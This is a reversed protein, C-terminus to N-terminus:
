FYFDVRSTFLRRSDGAKVTIGNITGDAVANHWYYATHWRIDKALM